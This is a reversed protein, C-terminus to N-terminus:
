AARPPQKAQRAYAGPTIGFAQKFRRTLHSQDAFGADYAVSTLPEGAEVLARALELRLRMQFALPPLGYVRTFEHALHYKSLCAIRALDALSLAAAVHARLYERVRAVGLPVPRIRGAPARVATGLTAAHGATGLSLTIMSPPM